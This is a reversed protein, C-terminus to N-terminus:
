KKGENAGERVDALDIEKTLGKQEEVPAIKAAFWLHTLVTLVNTDGWTAHPLIEGAVGFRFPLLM